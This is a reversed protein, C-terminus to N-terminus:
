MTTYVETDELNPDAGAALLMACVEDYGKACVLGLASLCEGM